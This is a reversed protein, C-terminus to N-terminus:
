MIGGPEILMHTSSFITGSLGLVKMRLAGYYGMGAVGVFAQYTNASGAWVATNWLGTDWLSTDEVVYSPSGAVNTFSYQVNVRVKVSPAVPAIFVPRALGFKKLQGPSGFSQFATQVDGAILDGGTADIAVNDKSGYFAKYVNGSSDGFYTVGSLVAACDMAMNSFTCWSGTNINMGFQQYVGSPQKPPRIVLVDDSPATFVDWSPTDRLLTVLPNLSSQIKQVPGPDSDVFQGNVLKSMQILGLESLVMVDGGTPTFYRGYKPVPGIYWVGKLAFTNASSPDTGQWVGVDGQTGVVVLHDDIGVGADLTWNFAASLYGGARLLSGMHFGAASGTISNVAQLYWLHADAEATFFVRQKWVSVTRLTTTPLGSPTRNVWGSTTSYTWYGAGPSVALLFTDAPTTFQTFSWLDDTSNSVALAVTAPDTTVDYIKGDAAAFLKNDNPNPATYSMLTKIPHGVDNVHLQFGKRMEVGNQRPIMNDLIVADTPSMESIPDRLNLGGVPAPINALKSVRGAAARMPTKFPALNRLPM